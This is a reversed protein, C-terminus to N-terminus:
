RVVWMRRMWTWLLGEECGVERGVDEEDVDM